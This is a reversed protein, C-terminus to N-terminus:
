TPALTLDYSVSVAANGSGTIKKADFWIDTKAAFSPMFAPLDDTLGASDYVAWVIRAPRFPAAVTDANLRQFMRVDASNGDSVQCFINRLYATYGLPVTYVSLQTQGFGAALTGLVQASSTNEIQIDGTNSGTYTGCTAVFARFIRIFTITSAASASAGALTLTDSQQVFNQDLGVVTVTRAGSGAATDNANGGSKVRVTQATTPWPYTGGQAAVLVYSTSVAINSGFKHVGTYTSNGTSQNLSFDPSVANGAGDILSVATTGKTPNAM